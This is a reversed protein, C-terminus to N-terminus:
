VREMEKVEPKRGRQGALIERNTEIREHISLKKEETNKRVGVQSSGSKAAAGINIESAQQVAPEREPLMVFQQLYPLVYEQIDTLETMYLQYIEEGKSRINDLWSTDEMKDETQKRISEVIGMGDSGVGLYGDLKQKEGKKEYYLTYDLLYNETQGDHSQISSGREKEKASVEQIKKEAETLTYYSGTKLENRESYRIRVMPEKLPYQVSNYNEIRNLLLKARPAEQGDDEIMEKLNRIYIAKNGYRLDMVIRQKQEEVTEFNDQFDYFDNEEALNMLADALEEATMNEPYMAKQLSKPEIVQYDPFLEQMKSVARCVEPSEAFHKVDDLGDAHIVDGKIFSYESGDFVPDKNDHYIIGLANGFHAKRFDERLIRYNLAAEELTDYVEYGKLHHFEDCEAVYFELSIDKKQKEHKDQISGYLEREIETAKDRLDDYDSLEANEIDMELDNEVIARLVNIMSEGLDDYVGGDMLHFNQHYITYDYGEDIEQVAIYYEGIKIAACDKGAIQNELEWLKEQMFGPVEAFGFSDVYYAKLMGNQRLVVVDSVSLSHGMYDEPHYLNFKEYLSDLTEGTKLRDTYVLQYGNKDVKRGSTEVYDMRMFKYDDMVSGRIIQYIGYRNETDKYMHEEQLHVNDKREM